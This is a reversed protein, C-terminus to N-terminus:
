SSLIMEKVKLKEKKLRAMLITDPAPRRLEEAIQQDLDAHRLELASVHANM